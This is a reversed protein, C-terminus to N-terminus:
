HIADQEYRLRNGFARVNQWPAEPMLEEALIGLKSSAESIREFCREVADYTKRDGEFDALSM